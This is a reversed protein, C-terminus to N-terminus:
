NVTRFWVIYSNRFCIKPESSWKRLRTFFFQCANKVPQCISHLLAASMVFLTNAVATGWCGWEPCPARHAPTSLFPMLHWVHGLVCLSLRPLLLFVPVCHLHLHLAFESSRATYIDEAVLVGTSGEGKAPEHLFLHGMLPSGNSLQVGRLM